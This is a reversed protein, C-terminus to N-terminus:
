EMKTPKQKEGNYAPSAEFGARQDQPIDRRWCRYQEILHSVGNVITGAILLAFGVEVLFPWSLFISIVLCLIGLLEMWYPRLFFDYM